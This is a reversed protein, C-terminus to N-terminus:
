CCSSMEQEKDPHDERLCVLGGFRCGAFVRADRPCAPFRVAGAARAGDAPPGQACDDARPGAPTFTSSAGAEDDSTARRAPAEPRTNAPQDGAQRDDGPRDQQHVRECMPAVEGGVGGGARQEPQDRQNREDDDVCPQGRARRPHAAHEGTQSANTTPVAIKLATSMGGAAREREREDRQEGPKRQHRACASSRAHM